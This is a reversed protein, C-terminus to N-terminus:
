FSSVHSLDIAAVKGAVIKVKLTGLVDYNLVEGSSVKIPKKGTYGYWAVGHIKVAIGLAAVLDSFPMAVSGFEFSVPLHLPPLGVTKESVTLPRVEVEGLLHDEGGMESNSSFRILRGNEMYDVFFEHGAADKDNDHIVGSGIIRIVDALTTKELVLTQGGVKCRQAFDFKVPTASDPLTDDDDAVGLGLLLVGYLLSLFAPRLLNM